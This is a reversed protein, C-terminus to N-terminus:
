QSTKKHNFKVDKCINNFYKSSEFYIKESNSLNVRTPFVQIYSFAPVSFGVVYFLVFLKKFSIM